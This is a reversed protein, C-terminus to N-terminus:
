KMVLQVGRRALTREAAVFVGGLKAKMPLLLMLSPLRKRNVLEAVSESIGACVKVNLRSGPTGAAAATSATVPTNAHVGSSVSPGPTYETLMRTVSLPDGGFLANSVMEMVTFSTFEGGTRAAMPLRVTLSPEASVKVAVAVSESRGTLEKANESSAPAGPPALM